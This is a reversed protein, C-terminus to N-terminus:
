TLASILFFPAGFLLVIIALPVLLALVVVGVTLLLVFKIVIGILLFPLLLIKLPWFVVHLAIKTVAIVAVFAILCIVGGAFLLGLTLLALM